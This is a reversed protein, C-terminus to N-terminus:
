RSLIQIAPEGVDFKMDDKLQRGQSPYEVLYQHFVHTAVMPHIEEDAILSRIFSAVYRRGELRHRMVRASHHSQQHTTLERIAQNLSEVCTDIRPLWSQKNIRM